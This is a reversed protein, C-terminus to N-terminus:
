GSKGVALRWKIYQMYSSGGRVKKRNDAQPEKQENSVTQKRQAEFLASPNRLEGGFM